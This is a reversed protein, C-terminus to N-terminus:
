QDAPKPLAFSYIMNGCAVAIFEQGDVAYSMPSATIPVGTRFNWLRKGTKEDLALFEGEATSAFVVGGRTGLVGASAADRTIKFDWVMKGTHSDIAKIGQSALPDPPPGGVGRGVYQKGREYVAPAEVAFGEADHYAVFFLGNQKDYSPAAFNTGSSPFVPQGTLTPVSKPNVIPRGNADFGLNWTQRVFPKSWLFKGDTRDLAYFMGNRDAHLLLKRPQGDIVQDALVLDETSDWDHGDNPTFQYHWKLKGTDADLAIVSDTYLNDGKRLDPNFDPGPNGIPWILSNTEPDYSGTLWTPAGGYKWSDGAWTDGGPEGPAPITYFRWLRDGTAPDYADLYGRLGMEGGSMGVILKDKLALPAGTITYGTLTDGITKEWLERGNHADLAILKNDLTGFFVRGDLVAVGKNFPNIQYPNKVDQKRHFRWIQLGSRADFAAVDGPPGAMYMVGDVVLPTAEMVTDGPMPAAWRAQLQAVNATNIQSLESFHHGRLDGWYTPWNKPDFKALRAYPLVPAPVVKSTQTFDRAKHAALYAVLNEIDDHSLRTAIDSPAAKGLDTRDAIDARDLMWYRGDAQEVHVTTVDEAKLVGHIKRGDRLTIDVLRAANAARQNHTMAARIAGAAKVGEVSMDSALDSGRGNVEHCSSCGGKDSFFLVEGAKADGTSAGGDQPSLSKIYTVIRWVDDAPLKAFSPMQSGPIGAEITQFLQYDEGGHAFTGTNLAPARDGVGGNGHCAICGANFITRGADVATPDKAFPNTPTDAKPQAAALAASLALVLGAGSLVKLLM